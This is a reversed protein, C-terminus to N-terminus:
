RCAANRRRMQTQLSAIANAQNTQSLSRMQTQLSAIANAQNTQSLSRM